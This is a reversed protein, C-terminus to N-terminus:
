EALLKIIAKFSRRNQPSMEGVLEKFHNELAIPQLTGSFPLKILVCKANEPALAKCARDQLSDWIDISVVPGMQSKWALKLFREFAVFLVQVPAESLVNNKSPDEVINFM